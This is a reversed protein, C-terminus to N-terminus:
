ARFCIIINLIPSLVPRSLTPCLHLLLRLVDRRVQDDEVDSARWAESKLSRRHIGGPMAGPPPRNLDM